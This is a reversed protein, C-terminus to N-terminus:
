TGMMGAEELQTLHRRHTDLMGEHYSIQGILWRRLGNTHADKLASEVTEGRGTLRPYHATTVIVGDSTIVVICERDNLIDV